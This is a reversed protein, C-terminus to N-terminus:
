RDHSYRLLRRMDELIGKSDFLQSSKAQVTSNIKHIMKRTKSTNTNINDKYIPYKMMIRGKPDVLWLCEDSENLILEKCKDHVTISHASIERLKVRSSDKGLAIHVRELSEKVNQIHQIHQIHQNVHPNHELSKPTVYIVQWKGKYDQSDINLDATPIPSNLLEGHNVTKFNFHDRYIYVFYAALMPMIMILILFLVKIQSLYKSKMKM